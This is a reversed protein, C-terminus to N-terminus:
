STPISKLRAVKHESVWTLLVNKLYTLRHISAQSAELLASQKPFLFSIRLRDIWIHFKELQRLQDIECDVDRVFAILPTILDDFQEPTTYHRQIATLLDTAVEQHSKALLEELTMTEHWKSWSTTQSLTYNLSLLKYWVYGYGIMAGYFLTMKKNQNIWSFIGYTYEQAQDRAQNLINQINTSTHSLQAQQQVQTENELSLQNASNMYNNVTVQAPPAHIHMIPQEAANIQMGILALAIMRTHHM